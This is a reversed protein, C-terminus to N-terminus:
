GFNRILQQIEVDRDEAQHAEQRTQSCNRLLNGKAVPEEREVKQVAEQM